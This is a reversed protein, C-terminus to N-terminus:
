PLYCLLLFLMAPISGEAIAQQVELSLTHSVAEGVFGPLDGSTPPTYYPDGAFDYPDALLYRVHSGLAPKSIITRLFYHISHFAMPKVTHLEVKFLPTLFVDRYLISTAIRNFVWCVNAHILPQDALELIDTLLETPIETIKPMKATM